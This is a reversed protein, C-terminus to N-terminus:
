PERKRGSCSLINFLASTRLPKDRMEEGVFYFSFYGNIYDNDAERKRLAIQDCHSLSLFCSVFQRSFNRFDM